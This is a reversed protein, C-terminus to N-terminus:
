ASSIRPIARGRAVDVFAKLAPSVQARSPFYLFLGPVAPAYPELVIRLSGRALEDAILPELPYLLGVGAVALSQMLATNNTTVPGRM